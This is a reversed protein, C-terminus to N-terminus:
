SDVRPSSLGSMLHVLEAQRTTGTKNFIARMQTRLTSIRVRHEKAVMGLRKGSAIKVALRAEAQTLRFMQMLKLDPQARQDLNNVTVLALPVAPKDLTTAGRSLPMVMLGYRCTSRGEVIMSGGGSSAESAAQCILRHLLETDQHKRAALRDSLLWIADGARLMAEAAQNMRIVRATADAALLGTQVSDLLDQGIEAEQSLQQFRRQIRAVRQLHPCLQELLACADSSFPGQAPSRFFAMTTTAPGAKLLNTTMLYRRGLPLSYDQYFENRRVFAEDFHKHCLLTWGVPQRALLARRPDIRLYYRLAEERGSYSKSAYSAIAQDRLEDWVFLHAAMADFLGYMLDLANSWQDPMIAAEYLLAITEQVAASKDQRRRM